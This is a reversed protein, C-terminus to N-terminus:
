SMVKILPIHDGIEGIGFRTSRTSRSPPPAQDPTSMVILLDGLVLDVVGTTDLLIRTQERSKLFRTWDPVSFVTAAIGRRWRERERLKVPLLRM